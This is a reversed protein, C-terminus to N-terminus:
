FMHKHQAEGSYQAPETNLLSNLITHLGLLLWTKNNAGHDTEV